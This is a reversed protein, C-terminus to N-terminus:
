LAHLSEKAATPLFFLVHLFLLNEYIFAEHTTYPFYNINSASVTTKRSLHPGTLMGFKNENHLQRLNIDQRM